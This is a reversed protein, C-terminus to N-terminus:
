LSRRAIRGVVETVVPVGDQEAPIDDAPATLLVKVVNGGRDDRAIGVGTVRPHSALAAALRAKAARASELGASV